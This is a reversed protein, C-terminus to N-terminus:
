ADPDVPLGRSLWEPLGGRFWYVTKFGKAVAIKSAKYSKWCEAGNCAFIVPKEPDLKALGSFDDAAPDFAIDKLSKEVYPVWQAGKVRREMYETESRVDVFTAGQRILAEVESVNVRTAGPLQGSTFHGLGAVYEDSAREPRYAVRGIGTIYSGPAEFWAILRSRAPEALTRKVAISMGGPVPKSTLLVNGKGPNQRTWADVEPRKAVTADVIGATVAFLGAGSTKRYMVDQFVKLSQGSANLM